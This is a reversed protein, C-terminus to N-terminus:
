QIIWRGPIEGVVLTNQSTVIGYCGADWAVDEPLRKYHLFDPYWCFRAATHDGSKAEPKWTAEDGSRARGVGPRKLGRIAGRLKLRRHSSGRDASVKSERVARRLKSLETVLLM